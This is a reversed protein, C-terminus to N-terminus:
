GGGVVGGVWFGGWFCVKAIKILNPHFKTPVAGVVNGGGNRRPGWHKESKHHYLSVGNYYHGNLTYSVLFTRKFDAKTGNQVMEYWYVYDCVIYLIFLNDQNCDFQM